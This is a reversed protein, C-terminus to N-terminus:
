TNTQDDSSDNNSLLLQLEYLSGVLQHIRIDVEQLRDNINAKERMLDDMELSLKQIRNEILQKMM